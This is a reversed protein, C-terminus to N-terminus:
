CFLVRRAFVMWKWGKLRGVFLWEPDIAGQSNFYSALFRRHGEITKLGSIDFDFFLKTLRVLLFFRMMLFSSRDRGVTPAHSERVSELSCSEIVPLPVLSGVTHKRMWTTSMQWRTETTPLKHTSCKSVLVSSSATRFSFHTPYTSSVNTTHACPYFVNSANRSPRFLRWPFM